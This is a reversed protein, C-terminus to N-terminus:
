MKYINHRVSIKSDTPIFCISSANNLCKFPHWTVRVTGTDSFQHNLELTVTREMLTVISIKVKLFIHLM